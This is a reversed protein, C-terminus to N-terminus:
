EIPWPMRFRALADRLTTRGWGAFKALEGMSKPDGGQNKRFRILADRIQEPSTIVYGTGKPRGRGRRRERIRKLDTRVMAVYAQRVALTRSGRAPILEDLIADDTWGADVLQAIRDTVPAAVPPDTAPRLFPEDPM